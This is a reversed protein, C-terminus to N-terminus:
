HYPELAEDLRLSDAYGFKESNEKAYGFKGFLNSFRSNKEQASM